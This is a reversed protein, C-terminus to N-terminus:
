ENKNNSINDNWIQSDDINENESTDVENSEINLKNKKIIINILKNNYQPHPNPIPSLGM